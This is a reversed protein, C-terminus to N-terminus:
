ESVHACSGSSQMLRLLRPSKESLFSIMTKCSMRGTKKDPLLQVRFLERESWDTFNKNNNNNKKSQVSFEKPIASSHRVKKSVFIKGMRGQDISSSKRRCSTRELGNRAVLFSVLSSPQKNEVISRQSYTVRRHDRHVEGYFECCWTPTTFVRRSIFFFSDKRSTRTVESSFHIKETFQNQRRFFFHFKKM